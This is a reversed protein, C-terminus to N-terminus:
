CETDMQETYILPPSVRLNFTLGGSAGCNCHIISRITKFPEKFLLIWRLNMNVGRKKYVGVASVYLLHWFCGIWLWAQSRSLVNWHTPGLISGCEEPFYWYCTKSTSNKTKKLYPEQCTLWAVVAEVRNDGGTSMLPMWLLCPTGRLHIKQERQQVIYVPIQISVWWNARLVTWEANISMLTVKAFHVVLSGLLWVSTCGPAAGCVISQFSVYGGFEHALIM